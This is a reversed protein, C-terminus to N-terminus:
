GVGGCLEGGAHTHTHTLSHTLTHTLTLSHSNTCTNHPLSVLCLFPHLPVRSRVFLVCTKKQQANPLTTNMAFVLRWPAQIRQLSLSTLLVFALRRKMCWQLHQSLHPPSAPVPVLAILMYKNNLLHLSACNWLCLCCCLCLSGIDIQGTYESGHCICVYMSVQDTIYLM